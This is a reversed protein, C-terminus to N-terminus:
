DNWFQRLAATLRYLNREVADILGGPAFQSGRSLVWAVQCDAHVIAEFRDAGKIWSLGIEGDGSPTPQPIPIEPPLSRLIREAILRVEPRIAVTDEGAWDRPLHEFSRIRDVTAALRADRLTLALGGAGTVEVSSAAEVNVLTNATTGESPLQLDSYLYAFRFPSGERLGEDHGCGAYGTHWIEYLYPRETPCMTGSTVPPRDLVIM